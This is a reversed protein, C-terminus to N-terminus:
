GRRVRWRCVVLELNLIEGPVVGFFHTAAMLKSQTKM